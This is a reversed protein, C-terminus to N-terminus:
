ASRWTPWPATRGGTSGSASFARGEEMVREINRDVSEQDRAVIDYLTMRKLEEATYGLSTQL